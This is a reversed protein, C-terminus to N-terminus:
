IKDKGKKNKKRITRNIRHMTAIRASLEKRNLTDFLKMGNLVDVADAGHYLISIEPVKKRLWKRYYARAYADEIGRGEKEEDYKPKILAEYETGYYEELRDFIAQEKQDEAHGGHDEYVHKLFTLDQMKRLAYPMLYRVHAYYIPKRYKILLLLRKDYFYSMFSSTNSPIYETVLTNNRYFAIHFESSNTHGTLGVKM